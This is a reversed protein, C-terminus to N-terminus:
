TYQSKLAPHTEMAFPTKPRKITSKLKIPSSQLKWDGNQDRVQRLL